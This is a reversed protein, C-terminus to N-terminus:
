YISGMSERTDPEKKIPPILAVAQPPQSAGRKGKAFYTVMKGRGKVEVEGRREFLYQDKLDRFVAETVQITGPVGTSEMRSAVNVTLGWIDFAFKSKGIVGAVLPGTEIGIRLIFQTGFTRNIEGIRDQLALALDVLNVLCKPDDGSVGTAAMYTNGVLKIKEVGFDSCMLDFKCVVENLIKMSPTDYTEFNAICCFMVAANSVSEAITETPAAKLKDVVAEPLLNHLFRSSKEQLDQIEFTHQEVVRKFLFNRRVFTDLRQQVIVLAYLIAVLQIFPEGYLLQNISPTILFTLGELVVSMSIALLLILFSNLQTFVTGTVASTLITAQITMFIRLIADDDLSLGARTQLYLSIIAWFSNMFMIFIILLAMFQFQAYTIRAHLASLISALRRPVPLHHWFKFTSVLLVPFLCVLNCLLMVLSLSSFTVYLNLATQVSTSFFVLCAASLFKHGMKRLFVAQYEAEMESDRFVLFATNIQQSTKAYLKLDQEQEVVAAVGDVSLKRMSLFSGKRKREDGGRSSARLSPSSPPALAAGSDKRTSGEYSRQGTAADDDESERKFQSNRQESLRPSPLSEVGPLRTIATNITPITKKLLNLTTKSIAAAVGEKEAISNIFYTATSFVPNDMTVTPGEEYTCSDAIERFTAESVHVRCPQSTKEMMSAINVDRGWVDYILKEDGILGAMVSGSHIGVRIPLSFTQGEAEVNMTRKVMALGVRVARLAHDPTPIPAGACLVYCDGVTKIKEIQEDDVLNDFRSFITNLLTVLTEASVSSSFKTFGVIDAFFISVRDHPYMLSQHYGGQFVQHKEQRLDEWVRRPLVSLAIHDSAEKAEKLKKHKSLIEDNKVFVKRSFMEVQYCYYFGM